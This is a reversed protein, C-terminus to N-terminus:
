RVAPSRGNNGGGTHTFGQRIPTAHRPAFRASITVTPSPNQGHGYGVGPLGFSLVLTLAYRM